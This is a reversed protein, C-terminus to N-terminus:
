ETTEGEDRSQRRDERTFAAFVGPREIGRNRLQWELSKLSAGVRRAARIPDEGNDILWMFDEVTVDANRLDATM